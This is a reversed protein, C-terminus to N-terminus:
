SSFPVYVYIYVCTCIHTALNQKGFNTVIGGNHYIVTNLTLINQPYMVSYLLKGILNQVEEQTKSQTVIKNM